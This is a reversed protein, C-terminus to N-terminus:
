DLVATLTVSPLISQLPIPLDTLSTSASACNGAALSQVHCGDRCCHLLGEGSASSGLWTSCHQLERESFNASPVLYLYIGIYKNSTFWLGQTICLPGTHIHQVGKQVPQMARRSGLMHQLPCSKCLDPGVQLTPTRVTNGKVTFINCSSVEELYTDSKADLYVVDAYGEKKAALQCNLVQM